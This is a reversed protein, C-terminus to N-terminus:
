LSSVIQVGKKSFVQRSERMSIYIGAAVTSYAVIIRHYLQANEISVKQPFVCNFKEPLIGQIYKM